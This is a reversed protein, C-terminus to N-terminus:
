VTDCWDHQRVTMSCFLSIRVKFVVTATGGESVVKKRMQLRVLRREQLAKGKGGLWVL